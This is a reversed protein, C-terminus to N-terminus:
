EVVRHVRLSTPFLGWRIRQDCLQIRVRRGAFVQQSLPQVEARFSEIVQPDDWTGEKMCFSVLMIDGERALQVTKRNGDRFGLDGLHLALRDSEDETTDKTRYLELGGQYHKLTGLGESPPIIQVGAAQLAVCILVLVMAWGVVLGVFRVVRRHRAPKSREYASRVGFALEANPSPSDSSAPLPEDHM